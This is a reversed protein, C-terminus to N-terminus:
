AVKRQEAIIKALNKQAVTRCHKEYGQKDFMKLAGAGESSVVKKARKLMEYSERIEDAVSNFVVDGDIKEDEFENPFLMSVVRSDRNREVVSLAEMAECASSYAGKFATKKEKLPAYILAYNYKEMEVDKVLMKKCMEALVIDKQDEAEEDRHKDFDGMAHEYFYNACNLVFATDKDWQVFDVNRDDGDKINKDNFLDAFEKFLVIRDKSKEADREIEAYEPVEGQSVKWSNIADRMARTKDLINLYFARRREALDIRRKKGEIFKDILPIVNMTQSVAFENGGNFEFDQWAVDMGVLAEPIEIQYGDKIGVKNSKNM